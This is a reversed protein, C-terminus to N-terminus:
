HMRRERERDRERERERVCVCVCARAGRLFRNLTLNLICHIFIFLILMEMSEARRAQRDNM